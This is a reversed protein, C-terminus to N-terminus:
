LSLQRQLWHCRFCHSILHNTGENRPRSEKLLLQNSNGSFDSSLFLFLLPRAQVLTDLGTAKSNQQTFPGVQTQAEKLCVFRQFSTERPLDAERDIKTNQNLLRDRDGVAVPSNRIAWATNIEVIIILDKCTLLLTAGSSRELLVNMPPGLM